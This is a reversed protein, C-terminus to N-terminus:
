IEPITDLLKRRYQWDLDNANTTTIHGHKNKVKLVMYYIAVLYANLILYETYM